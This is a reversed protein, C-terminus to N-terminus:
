PLNHMSGCYTCRVGRWGYMRRCVESCVWANGCCPLMRVMGNNRTYMGCVMCGVGTVELYDALPDAVSVQLAQTMGHVYEIGPRASEAPALMQYLLCKLSASYPITEIIQPSKVLERSPIVKLLAMTLVTGALSFVDSAFPSYCCNLEGNEQYRDYARLLESSFYAPTGVLTNEDSELAKKAASGFDSLKYAGTASVLM